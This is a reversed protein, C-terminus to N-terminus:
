GRPYSSVPVVIPFWRSCWWQGHYWHRWGRKCDIRNVEVISTSLQVTFSGAFENAENADAWFIWQFCWSQIHIFLGGSWEEISRGHGISGCNSFRWTSQAMLSVSFADELRSHSFLPPQFGWLACRVFWEKMEKLVLKRVTAQMHPICEEIIDHFLFCDFWSIRRLHKAFEFQVVPRLHVNQIEELIKWWGCWVGDFDIWSVNFVEDNRLTWWLGEVSFLVKSEGNSLHNEQGIALRSPMYAASGYGIGCEKIDSHLLGMWNEVGVSETWVVWLDMVSNVVAKGGEQFLENFYHAKQKLSETEVRVQENLLDLM